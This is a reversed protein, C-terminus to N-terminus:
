SYFFFKSVQTYILMQTIKTLFIEIILPFTTRHLNLLELRLFNLIVYYTIYYVNEYM